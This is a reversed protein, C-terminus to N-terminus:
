QLTLTAGSAVDLLRFFPTTPDTSREVTDGNGVITLNNRAAIVPLGTPGDTANDSATLVYPSTTPATLIISNSGGSTNAAQIDAVLDSVTAASFTAPLARDELQELHPRLIRRQPRRAPKGATRRFSGFLNSLFMTLMERRFLGATAHHPKPGPACV